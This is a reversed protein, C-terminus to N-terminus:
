VSDTDLQILTQWIISTTMQLSAESLYTSRDTTKHYHRFLPAQQLIEQLTAQDVDFEQAKYYHYAVQLDEESVCTITFADDLGAKRFSIHDASNTVIRDFRQCNIHNESSTKEFTQM